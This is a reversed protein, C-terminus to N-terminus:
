WPMSLLLRWVISQITHNLRPNAGSHSTTLFNQTPHLHSTIDRFKGLSSRYCTKHSVSPPERRPGGSQVAPAPQEPRHLSSGIRFHDLFAGSRPTGLRTVFGSNLRLLFKLAAVHSQRMDLLTFPIM